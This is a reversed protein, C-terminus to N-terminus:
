VWERAASLLTQRYTDEVVPFMAFALQKGALSDSRYHVGAWERNEAVRWAIEFLQEGIEHSRVITALAKALLHYQLSHGSPYAPHGPGDILPRLRPELQCPRPRGYRNKFHVAVVKGLVLLGHILTYTAPFGGGGPQIMLPRMLPIPDYTKNEKKIDPKRRKREEQNEQMAMLDQLELVTADPGPPPDIPHPHGEILQRWGASEFFRPLEICYEMDYQWGNAPFSGVTKTFSKTKTKTLGGKTLPM